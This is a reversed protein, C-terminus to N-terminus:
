AKKMKRRLYRYLAVLAYAIIIGSCIWNAWAPLEIMLKNAQKITNSTRNFDLVPKFGPMLLKNAVYGSIFGLTVIFFVNCQGKKWDDKHNYSTGACEYRRWGDPVYNIYRTCGWQSGSSCYVTYPRGSM